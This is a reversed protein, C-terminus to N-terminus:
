PIKGGFFHLAVVGFEPLTAAFETEAPPTGPTLHIKQRPPGHGDRWLADGTVRLIRNAHNERGQGLNMFRLGHDIPVHGRRRLIGPRQEVLPQPGLGPDLVFIMAGNASEFQAACEDVYVPQLLGVGTKGANDGCSTAIMALADAHGRAEETQMRDDNNGM